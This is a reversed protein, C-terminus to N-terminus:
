FSKWTACVGAARAATVDAAASGPHYISLDNPSFGWKGRAYSFVEEGRRHRPPGLTVAETIIAANGFVTVAKITRAARAPRCGHHVKIWVRRPIQRRVTPALLAWSEAYRGALYVQDFRLAATRAGAKAHPETAGTQEPGPATPSHTAPGAASPGPAANSCAALGAALVGALLVRSVRM